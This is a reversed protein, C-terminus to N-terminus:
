SIEVESLCFFEWLGLLLVPLNSELGGEGNDFLVDVGLLVMQVFHCDWSVELLLDQLLSM